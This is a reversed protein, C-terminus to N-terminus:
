NTQAFRKSQAGPSSTLRRPPRGLRPPSVGPPLWVSVKRIGQRRRTSQFGLMRLAPGLRPADLMPGGDVRVLTRALWVITIEEVLLARAAGLFKFVRQLTIPDPQRMDKVESRGLGFVPPFPAFPAFPLVTRRRLPPEQPSNPTAGTEGTKGTKGPLSGRNPLLRKVASSCAQAPSTPSAPSRKQGERSTISLKKDQGM